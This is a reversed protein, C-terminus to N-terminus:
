GIVKELVAKKEEYSLNCEYINKGKIYEMKLPNTEYIHPLIRVDLKGAKEYWASERLALKKGQEDVAEKILIGDKITIRNFPRCKERELKEYEALLGFERTGALSIEQYKMGQDRMWRVLEGSEPIASLKDKDTFLFFGAM